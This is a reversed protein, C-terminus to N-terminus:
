APLWFGNLIVAVDGTLGSVEATVDGTQVGVYETSDFVKGPETVKVGGDPAQVTSRIM